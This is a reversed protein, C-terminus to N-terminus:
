EELEVFRLSCTATASGHWQLEWTDSALRYTREVGDFAVWRFAQFRGRLQRIFLRFALAADRSLLTFQVPVTRKRHRLEFTSLHGNDFTNASWATQRQPKARWDHREALLPLGASLPGSYAPIPEQVSDSEFALAAQYATPSLVELSFSDDSLRAEVVPFAVIDAASWEGAIAPTATPSSASVTATLEHLSGDVRKVVFRKGVGQGYVATVLPSQGSARSPLPHMWVPILVTANTEFPWVTAREDDWLPFSASLGYRPFARCARRHETGDFGTELATLETFHEVLSEGGTPWTYFTPTSM